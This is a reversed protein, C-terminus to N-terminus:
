LLDNVSIRNFRQSSARAASSVASATFGSDARTFLFSSWSLASFSFGLVVTTLGSSSSLWHAKELGGLAPKKNNTLGIVCSGAHYLGSLEITLSVSGIVLVEVARFRWRSAGETNISEISSVPFTNACSAGSLLALSGISLSTLRLSTTFNLQPKWPAV